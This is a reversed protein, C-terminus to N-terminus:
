AVRQRTRLEFSLKVYFCCNGIFTSKENNKWLRIFVYKRIKPLHGQLINNKM